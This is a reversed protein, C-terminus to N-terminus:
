EVSDTDANVPSEAISEEEDNNEEIEFEVDLKNIDKREGYVVYYYNLPEDTNTGVVVDGNEKISSVFLDQGPGIATLDVTMTDIDVLSDWYDAVVITDSTSKGRFYVGIEPGELCAHALQKNEKTPHDIVFSKYSGQINGNVQLAYYGSVSTTGIGVNGQIIMGNSPPTNSQYSAGIAVGYGSSRSIFNSGNTLQNTNTPITTSNYANSGFIESFRKRREAGNDLLILEDQSTNVSATMDTLESLDLSLGTATADLGLGLTIEDLSLNITVSGSSGGGDLGVGVNVNTIDGTNTTYGASAHNGWGYATNWNASTGHGTTTITGDTWIGTGIATKTTGNHCVLLQHSLGSKSQGGINTHTWCLGYLSGTNGGSSPLMYSTGMAWVGQYKTASYLGVNGLGFNNVVTNGTMTGGSLSLKSATDTLSFTTGSLSIGTGASYTTNTNTDSWPVNVYMKESSVEVPYNKGNESYGIKFGGRTSSSGAPLSYNNANSAGTYGLTALSPKNGSHYIEYKAAGMSWGGVSLKNSDADLGFYCAFDGGSHFAMFADNGAGNNYVELGGQSGTSTAINDHNNTNCNDFRMRQTFTDAADSRAFSSSNVGDLKDSDAAKGTTTLYGQNKVYATTAIKTSNESSAQTTATSLRAAAVTGANLNSANRYYSGHQGDLLDADLGSGSGDNGSDWITRWSTWSDSPSANNDANRVRLYNGGSGSGHGCYIQFDGGADTGGRAGVHLVSGYSPWGDSSRVFSTQLGTTYNGATTSESWVYNGSTPLVKNMITVPVTGSSLNSANLYHSGHQGDLLDADLGSGSGDVTKIATLIESASQDATAGNEVNIFSRVAAATGHRIYGDNGTEVCIQTIGSSVTNPTTNFYNAFIYGSSHRKVITNNSASSSITDTISFTTGSLSLGTGASYTTNTDTNTDTWPVNVYMKESSVEVPYNKGNESYGIKVGGRTSSSAAPLSYASPITPKNTLDNYSIHSGIQAGFNAPTYYRIYGDHSAYIRSITTTGSDGSTTNIWGAQIYGNADTRVVRNAVNNRGTHLELGDLKDADLGSGSGDNGEHWVTNGLLTLATGNWNLEKRNSWATNNSPFAYAVFGGEAGVFVTETANNINSNLTGSTDGGAIIVADDHGITLAGNATMRQIVAQGDVSLITGTDPTYNLTGSFDDNANSRLFASSDIGDLLNSDAAKGSTSLKGALATTITSAYSADDNIAAALENLTDLAGPAGGILDAIETQVYATTAIRTSNNNASQTPATPNGTLAPSALAAKADLSSQLSTINAITHTHSNNSVAATITIDAAGTFEASGSLDGGLTIVRGSTLRDANPHYNDAFVRDSGLYFTSDTNLTAKTSGSTIFEIKHNSITGFRGAAHGTHAYVTSIIGDSISKVDLRAHSSGALNLRANWSGDNSVSGTGNGFENYSNTFSNSGSLTPIGSGTIYNQGKVYATTAVKTSNEGSGATPATLNGSVAVDGTFTANQNSLIKLAATGNTYFNLDGAAIDGAVIKAETDATRGIELTASGGSTSQVLLTPAAGAVHLNTAPSSTGIGVLNGKVVLANTNYTGITVTDESSTSEVEVIPLGSADNVSFITGTLSDNVSFLRGSDGDITFRDTSTTNKSVINLGASGDHNLSVANGTLAPISSSGATGDDFYIAGNTLHTLINAM